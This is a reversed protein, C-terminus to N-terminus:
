GPPAPQGESASFLRVVVRDGVQLDTWRGRSAPIESWETPEKAADVTESPSLKRVIETTRTGSARIWASPCNGGLIVEFPTLIRVTAEVDHTASAKKSDQPIGDSDHAHHKHVLRGDQTILIDGDNSALAKAITQVLYDAPTNFGMLAAQRRIALETRADAEWTLQIDVEEAQIPDPMPTSNVISAPGM